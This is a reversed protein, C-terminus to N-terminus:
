FVGLFFLFSVITMCVFMTALDPDIQAAMKRAHKLIIQTHEM